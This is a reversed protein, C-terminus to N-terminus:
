KQLNSDGVKIETKNWSPENQNEGRKYKYSGKGDNLFGAGVMRLTNAKNPQNEAQLWGGMTSQRGSQEPEPVGGQSDGERGHVGEGNYKPELVRCQAALERGGVHISEKDQEPESVGHWM